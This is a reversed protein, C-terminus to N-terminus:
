SRTLLGDATNTPTAADEWTMLAQDPGAATLQGTGAPACAGAPDHDIRTVFDIRDSSASTVTATGSCGLEALEFRGVQAGAVLEVRATWLPDQGAPQRIEGVWRGAFGEPVTGASADTTGVLPAGGGDFQGLRYLGWGGLVVVLAIVALVATRGGRDPTHARGLGLVHTPGPHFETEALAIHTAETLAMTPDAQDREPEPRGLLHALAQQASPRRAPDKDLCRNLLDVLYAPVGTLDPEGATIRNMVAAMHPADFPARGTAALVIVSAWAFMDTAPGVPEARFQEPAMYAPTGLVRSAVTTEASLDRAIGFDIVRPGDPALM